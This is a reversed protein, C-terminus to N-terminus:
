LGVIATYGAGGDKYIYKLIFYNLPQSEYFFAQNDSVAENILKEKIVRAAASAQLLREFQAARNKEKETLQRTEGNAPQEPNLIEGTTTDLNKM